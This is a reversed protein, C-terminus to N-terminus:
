YMSMLANAEGLKTKEKYISPVFSWCFDKIQKRNPKFWYGSLIARLRELRNNLRLFANLHRYKYTM